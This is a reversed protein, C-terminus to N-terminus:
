NGTNLMSLRLTVQRPLAFLAGTLMGLVLLVFVDGYVQSAVIFTPVNALLFALTGVSFTLKSPLATAVLQLCRHLHRAIAVGLWLVFILSILGLESVLKGIGGEGAGSLSIDAGVFHQAGQAAIGLGGGFIGYLRYAWSISGIGLSAFREGADDFVSISRAVYLDYQTGEFNPLLWYGAFLVALSIVSASIFRTSLRGQYYRLIPFYLAAFIFIQLIMKRRGTLIISSMLLIVTLSVLILSSLSGRDAVLIILFCICSGMHWSAIESSRMLGSYAKLITGQDYIVLGSGVEGFLESRVGSFSMLVSIAVIVAFVCFVMLFSRVLEFRYFQSYGVVIAVLPAIYFIAGLGTLIPSGYRLLSHGGQIVIISLYISLPSMIQSSWKSFPEMLSDQSVFFRRLAICAVLCGVMITMYVPEGAILKRAPDQLFGIAVIFGSIGVDRTLGRICGIALIAFFIGVLM